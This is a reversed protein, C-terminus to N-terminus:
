NSILIFLTLNSSPILYHILVEARVREKVIFSDGEENWCLTDPHNEDADMIMAHLKQAFNLKNTGSKKTSSSSASEIVVLSTCPDPSKTKQVSTPTVHNTTKASQRRSPATRKSKSTVRSPTNGKVSMKKQGGRSNSLTTDSKRKKKKVPDEGLYSQIDSDFTVSAKKASSERGRKPRTKHQKEPQQNASATSSFSASTSVSTSSRSPRSAGGIVRHSSSKKKGEKKQSLEKMTPLTIGHSKRMHNSICAGACQPSKWAFKKSCKPCQWETMGNSKVVQQADAQKKESPRAARITTTKQQSSGARPKVSKKTKKVPTKSEKKEKKIVTSSTTSTPSPQAKVDSSAHPHSLKVTRAKSERNKIEKKVVTATSSKKKDETSMEDTADDDNTNVPLGSSSRTPRAEKDTSSNSTSSGDDVAMDEDDKSQDSKKRRSEWGLKAAERRVTSISKKSTKKKKDEKSQTTSIPLSSPVDVEDAPSISQQHQWHQANERRRRIDDQIETHCLLNPILSQSYICILL